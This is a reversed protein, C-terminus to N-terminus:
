QLCPIGRFHPAGSSVPVLAVKQENAMQRHGSSMSIPPRVVCRPPGPRCLAATLRMNRSSRPSDLVNEQGAIKVLESEVM